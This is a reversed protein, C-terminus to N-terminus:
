GALREKSETALDLAGCLVNLDLLTALGQKFKGIGVMGGAVLEGPIGTPSEIESMDLQCVGEIQDVAIGLVGSFSEVVVLARSASRRANPKEDPFWIRLDIVGVIEGRLNIIGLFNRKTNPVTRPAQFPVVERVARLPSGFLEGQFRFLLFSEMSKLDATPTQNM